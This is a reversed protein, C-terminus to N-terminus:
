QPTRTSQEHMEGGDCHEGCTSRLPVPRRCQRHFPKQHRHRYGLSSHQGVTNYHRRWPEVLLRPEVLSYFNECNLLEDRLSWNVASAMQSLNCAAGITTPAYMDAPWVRRQKGCLVNDSRINAPPGRSIFLDALKALM